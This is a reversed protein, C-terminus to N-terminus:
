SPRGKVVMHLVLSMLIKVQDSNIVEGEIIDIEQHDSNNVNDAM